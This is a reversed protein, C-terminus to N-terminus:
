KVRFTSSPPVARAARVKKLYEATDKKAVMKVKVTRVKQGHISAIKRALEPSAFRVPHSANMPKATSLCGYQPIYPFFFIM